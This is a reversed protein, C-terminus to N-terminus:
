NSNNNPSDVYARVWDNDALEAQRMAEEAERYTLGSMETGDKFVVTFTSETNM